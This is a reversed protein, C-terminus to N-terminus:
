KQTLAYWLMHRRTPQALGHTDCTAEQARGEQRYICRRVTLIAVIECGTTRNVEILSAGWTAPRCAEHVVASREDAAVVPLERLCLM